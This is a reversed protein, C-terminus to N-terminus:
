GTMRAVPRVAHCGLAGADKHVATAVGANINQQDMRASGKPTVSIKADPRDRLPLQVISFVGFGRGPAFEFFLEAYFSNAREPRKALHALAGSFYNLGIRQFTIKVHTAHAAVIDGNVPRRSTAAGHINGLDIARRPENNGERSFLNEGTLPWKKIAQFWETVAFRSM